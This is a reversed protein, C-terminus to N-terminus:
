IDYKNKLNSAEDRCEVYQLQLAESSKKMVTKEDEMFLTVDGLAETQDSLKAILPKM